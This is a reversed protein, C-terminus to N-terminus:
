SSVGGFSVLIYALWRDLFFFLLLLMSSALVVFGVAASAGITITPM